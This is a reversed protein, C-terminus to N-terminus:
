RALRIRLNYLMTFLLSLVTIFLLLLRVHPYKGFKYDNKKYGEERFAISCIHEIILVQMPSLKTRWKEYNTTLLPGLTEKKWAMESKSVLEKSSEAFNLMQSDYPVNIRKCLLILNKEPDRILNEYKVKVYRDSKLIKAKERGRRYQTNYILAHIWYPRHASWAAKTRSLIVDRPDRVVNLIFASPFYRHLEVLFDINRPDKDGIIRAEKKNKYLFLLRVFSNELKFQAAKENYPKLLYAPKIGARSFQKDNNLVTVFTGPGSREFRNKLKANAVYKRFYHTEPIFSIEPHANLMSQVLSTGSRGIGVIFVPEIVEGSIGNIDM